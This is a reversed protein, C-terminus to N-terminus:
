DVIAERIPQKKMLSIGLLYIILFVSALLSLQWLNEWLSRVPQMLVFERLLFVPMAAGITAVAVQGAERGDLVGRGISKQFQHMLYGLNMFASVSTAYAVSSVGWGFGMIFLTNFFLNSVLSLFAGRMPVHYQRRSYFAPAYILILTAPVLGLAYGQLCSNTRGADSWTFDGHRYILSIAERGMLFIAATVPVMVFLTKRIGFRFFRLFGTIDGEKMKRSLPPLIASSLAIGFLALPLQQLRIAYWLLAPGDLEAYRAFLPDVASNVQTSIVGLVALSLSFLLKKLGQIPFNMNAFVLHRRVIKWTSPITMAWQAVCALNIFLAMGAMAEQLPMHHLCLIGTIWCLNFGAPAAGPVFYSKECQLLSANLGYLCIFLLGPLMLATLFVVQRSDESLNGFVYLAWLGGLLLFVLILLLLSLCLFIGIFFRFAKGEEQSRIEEFAPTFAANLAGEGFIRRFFHSLRFALLFAAVAGNVGFVSAMAIDRILGTVRSIM